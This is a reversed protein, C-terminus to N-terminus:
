QFIRSEVGSGLKGWNGWIADLMGFLKANRNNLRAGGHSKLTYALIDRSNVLGAKFVSTFRNIGKLNNALFLFRNRIMYYDTRPSSEGMTASVKHWMKAQPVYMARWGVSRARTFWDTEDYYIFFREDILGIEDFVARKICIACSTIFDVRLTPSDEVKSIHEGDNLRITNGTRWDISNGACWIVDPSDFYLMTPGTIGVEPFAEAVAVLHFLMERDVVTDNNLLVVYDAGNTLAQKIGINNGMSYGVNDSNEILIVDPFQNRIRDSSNDTSGNDVVIIAFNSYDQSYLSRLCEITLDAENWNLLVFTVRPQESSACINNM